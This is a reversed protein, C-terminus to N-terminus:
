YPRDGTITVRFGSRVEPFYDWIAFHQVARNDWFAVSGPHWRFRVQFEPTEIHRFLYELLVDSEGATLGNIRTTFIRNVFLCKRGTVPHTRVVPHDNEPYSLEADNVGRYAYRGRYATEGSHRATLGDLMEQLPESLADYAAYMSAFLTDGGAEPVTQMHLLSGMPPADDCSVDSHWEEGAIHTSTADAHIVIVEPHGEPGPIGPHIHLDGFHRAFAKQQELTMQQDRFFLVQHTMLAQHIQDFGYADLEASIDFGQVEAGIVPTLPNLKIQNSAVSM